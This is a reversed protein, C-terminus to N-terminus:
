SYRDLRIVEQETGPRLDRVLYDIGADLAAEIIDKNDLQGVGFRGGTLPAQHSEPLTEMMMMHAQPTNFNKEAFKEAKGRTSFVLLCREGRWDEVYHLGACGEEFDQEWGAFCIWYSDQGKTM